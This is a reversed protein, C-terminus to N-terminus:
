LQTNYLDPRLSAVTARLTETSEDWWYPVEVLTINQLGCVVAKLADVTAQKHVEGFAVIDYFHRDGQVEVALSAGEFYIDLELRSM